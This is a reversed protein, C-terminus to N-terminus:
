EVRSAARRTTEPAGHGVRVSGVRGVLDVAQVGGAEGIRVAPGTAAVRAARQAAHVERVLPCHDGGLPPRLEEGVGLKMEVASPCEEPFDPVRDVLHGVAHAVHQQEPAVDLPGVLEEHGGVVGEIEPGIGVPVAQEGVDRRGVPIRYQVLRNREAVEAPREACLRRALVRPILQAPEDAKAHHDSKLGVERAAPGAFAVHRPGPRVEVDAGLAVPVGGLEGTRHGLTSPVREARPQHCRIQCRGLRDRVVREIRCEDTPTCGVIGLRQGLELPDPRLAGAAHLVDRLEHRRAFHELREAPRHRQRDARLVALEVVAESRIRQVGGPLARLLDAREGPLGTLAHPGHERFAQRVKALAGLQLEGCAM